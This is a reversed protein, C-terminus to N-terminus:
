IETNFPVRARACVGFHRQFWSFLIVVRQVFGVDNSIYYEPALGPVTVSWTGDSVKTMPLPDKTGELHLEVKAANPM